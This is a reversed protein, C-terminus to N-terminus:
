GSLPGRFTLRNTTPEGNVNAYVEVVLEKADVPVRFKAQMPGGEGPLYEGLDDGATWPAERQGVRGSFSLRAQGATKNGVTVPLLVYRQSPDPQGDVGVVPDGSVVPTGVEIYVGSSSGSGGWSLVAPAASSSTTPSPTSSSPPPESSSPSSEPSTTSCAALFLVAALLLPTRMALNDHWM